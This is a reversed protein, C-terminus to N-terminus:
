CLAPFQMNKTQTVNRVAAKKLGSKKYTAFFYGLLQTVNQVVCKKGDLKSQTKKITTATLTANIIM